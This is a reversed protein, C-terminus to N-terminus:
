FLDAPGPFPRPPPMRERRAKIRKERAEQMAKRRPNEGLEETCGELRHKDYKPRGYDVYAATDFASYAVFPRSSMREHMIRDTTKFEDQQRRARPRLAVEQGERIICDSTEPRHKTEYKKDFGQMVSRDVLEQPHANAHALHLARFREDKAARTLSSNRWVGNLEAAFDLEHVLDSPDWFGPLCHLVTGDAALVFMQTNHPGAGNTTRAAAMEPGHKGSLGAYPQGSIDRFGCVFKSQLVKTVKSDSLSM